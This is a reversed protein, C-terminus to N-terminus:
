AGVKTALTYRLADEYHEPYHEPATNDTLRIAYNPRFMAFGYLVDMYSIDFSKLYRMSIGVNPLTPPPPLFIKKAGPVWLLRELDLEPM